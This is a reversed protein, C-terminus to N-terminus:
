TGVTEAQRDSAEEWPKLSKGYPPRAIGRESIIASILKAPVVDFAPNRVPIDPLTIACSGARRVEEGPREEIPIEEGTRLRFDFTSLPAAIYFPLGHHRALVALSYTGIKNAADGRRVIRDAGTIVLNVDGEKMLWGAMSDTILTMPIGLKQLEWATLRAGQLFPRTEDVFVHIKKGEEFAARIIGIATGYGATALGGANCHTLVSDGDAILDKGFSGIKKNMELDEAEIAQAERLLRLGLAGCPLFRNEATVRKMRELAWFLNRATPRTRALREVIRDFQRDVNETPGASMVGLTVGYAAAVGIAPAGRIVMTEIARAVEEETRCEVYVEELPLKRQDIMVVRDERWEITPRM